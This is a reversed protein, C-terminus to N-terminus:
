LVQTKVSYEKFKQLLNLGSYRTFVAPAYLEHKRLLGCFNVLDEGIELMKTHSPPQLKCFIM